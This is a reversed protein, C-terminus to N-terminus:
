LDTFVQALHYGTKRWDLWLHYSAFSVLMARMRFTIWGTQNLCRMCADIIPYGTAGNKWAQFFDDNFDNERMGEFTPHMCLYEISPQDEIKQIFHCRWTLRSMFASYHRKMSKMAEPSLTRVHSQHAKIIENVSLTGWTLHPSLRSCFYESDGPASISYLYEQAREQLFSHLTEVAARRGGTQTVGPVKDGFLADDKAPTYGIDLDRLAPIKNPTPNLDQRMRQNRIRSWDDRSKLRRVVGNTPFECLSIQQEKCWDIVNLDRQYTWGNGNEEHAFIGQISFEKNFTALVNLVEGIRIVLPQGLAACDQRLECLCDHIFHWHRRSAFPQQWYEPEVVYLPICPLGSQCAQNLPRHDEIRLDRKFWVINIPTKDM